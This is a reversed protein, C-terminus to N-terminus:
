SFTFQYSGEGQLTWNMRVNRQQAWTNVIRMKLMSFKQHEHGSERPLTKEAWDLWHYFVSCREQLILQTPSYSAPLEHKEFIKNALNNVKVCFDLRSYNSDLLDRMESLIQGLFPQQHQAKAAPMAM